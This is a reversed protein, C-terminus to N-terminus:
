IVTKIQNYKFFNGIWGSAAM